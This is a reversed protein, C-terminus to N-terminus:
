RTFPTVPKPPEKNIKLSLTKIFDTREKLAPFPMASNRVITQKSGITAIKANITVDGSSEAM